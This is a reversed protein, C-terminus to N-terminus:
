MEQAFNRQLRDFVYEAIFLAILGVGLAILLRALFHEPYIVTDSFRWMVQQLSLVAVTIPNALYVQQFLTGLTGHSSTWEVVMKWSYLIPTAWVGIMLVVEVLYQIDRLYVNAASLILAFAVGWVLVVFISLPLYLWNVAPITASFGGSVLIFILLIIFQIAFNFLASGVSALPFVERPLKVKKVIGNNALISVTGVSVIEQFLGWLCLGTYVYVAFGTIGKAAGLFQGLVLWYILLMIIPRIMSWVLGLASDKYKARIERKTLLKLLHRHAVIDAVSAAMGSWVTTVPAMNRLPEQALAAMREEAATM